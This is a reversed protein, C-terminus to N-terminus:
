LLVKIETVSGADAVGTAQISNAEGTAMTWENEEGRTGLFTMDGSGATAVITRSVAQAAFRRDDPYKTAFLERFYLPFSAGSLDVVIYKGSAGLADPHSM